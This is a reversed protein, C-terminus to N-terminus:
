DRLHRPLREKRQNKKGSNRSSDSSDHWADGNVRKRQGFSYKEKVTECDDIALMKQTLVEVQESALDQLAYVNKLYSLASYHFVFDAPAILSSRVQGHLSTSQLLSPM